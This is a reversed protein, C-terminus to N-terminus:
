SLEDYKGALVETVRGQNVDMKEAVDRVHMEPNHKFMSKIKDRLAVTMRQSTVKGQVPKHRDRYMHKLASKVAARTQMIDSDFNELDKLLQELIQRAHPIDSM